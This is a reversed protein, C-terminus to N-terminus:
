VVTGAYKLAEQLSDMKTSIQDMKTDIAQAIRVLESMDGGGGGGGSRFDAASGSPAGQPGPTDGTSWQYPPGADEPLGQQELVRAVQEPAGRSGPKPLEVQSAPRATTATPQESPGEREQKPPWTGSPTSPDAPFGVPPATVDAGIPPAPAVDPAKVPATADQAGLQNTRQEAYASAQEPTDFSPFKDLGHAKAAKIAEEVSAQKGGLLTPIVYERDDINVGITRESSFSGDENEVRVGAGPLPQLSGEQRGGQQQVEASVPLEPQEPFPSGGPTDVASGSPRTVPVEPDSLPERVEAAMRAPEVPEQRPRGTAGSTEPMAEKGPEALAPSSQEPASRPSTSPLDPVPQSPPDPASRPSAPTDMAPRGQRTVPVEPESLPLRDEEAAQTPEVQETERERPRRRAARLEKSRRAREERRQAVAEPHELLYRRRM